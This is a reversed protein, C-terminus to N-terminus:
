RGKKRAAGHAMRDVPPGDFAKDVGEAREREDQKEFFEPDRDTLGLVEAREDVHPIGTAPRASPKPGNAPIARGDELLRCAIPDPLVEVPSSPTRRIAM